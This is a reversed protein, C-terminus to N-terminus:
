RNFTNVNTAITANGTGTFFEVDVLRQRERQEQLHQRVIQEARHHQEPTLGANTFENRPEFTVWNFERKPSLTPKKKGESNQVRYSELKSALAKIEVQEHATLGQWSAEKKQLTEFRRSRRKHKDKSILAM